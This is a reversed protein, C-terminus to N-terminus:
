RFLKLSKKQSEQRYEKLYEQIKKPIEESIEEPNNCKNRVINTKHNLESYKLCKGQTKTLSEKLSEM